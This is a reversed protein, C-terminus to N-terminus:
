RNVDVKMGPAEGKPAYALIRLFVERGQFVGEVWLQPGEDHPLGISSWSAAVVQEFAARLGELDLSFGPSVVEGDVAGGVLEVPTPYIVVERLGEEHCYRVKLPGMASDATMQAAVIDALEDLWELEDEEDDGQPLPGHFYCRGAEGRREFEESDHEFLVAM